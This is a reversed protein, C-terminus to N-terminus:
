RNAKSARTLPKFGEGLVEHSPSLVVFADPGAERLPQVAGWLIPRAVLIQARQEIHLVSVEGQRYRGTYATLPRAPDCRAVTQGVLIAPHLTCACVLGIIARRRTSAHANHLPM